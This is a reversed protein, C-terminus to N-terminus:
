RKVIEGTLKKQEARHNVYWQQVIMFLLGIWWYLGLGLPFIYGTVGIMVPFVYLSMKQMMRPDLAPMEAAEDEKKEPLKPQNQVSLYSQLWQTVALLLAMIIGVTGGSALLDQGFFIRQISNPDFHSFFSYLHYFNSPDTIGMIVWYLGLLIPIQLLLPLCSGVPNVGEKKYLEMMKMGLEAQNDKYEKRLAQIKPNLRALKRQSEFMRHQPILLIIRIIITIIVIAWGLEHGPLLMLIGVFLNYIPEYILTSLFSRIMGPKEVTFAISREWFDTQVSMIYTGALSSFVRHLPNMNIIATSNEAITLPRCFDPYTEEIKSLPASNVSLTIDSCPALTIAGSSVNHFSIKPINPITVASEQISLYAWEAPVTPTPRPIFLQMVLTILLALIAINLIKALQM